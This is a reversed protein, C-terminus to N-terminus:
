RRQIVMGFGGRASAQQALQRWARRVFSAMWPDRMLARRHIREAVDAWAIQVGPNEQQYERLSNTILDLKEEDTWQHPVRERNPQDPPTLQRALPAPDDPRPAAQALRDASIDMQDGLSVYLQVTPVLQEFSGWYLNHNHNDRQQRLGTMVRKMARERDYPRFLVYETAGEPLGGCGIACVGDNLSRAVYICEDLL